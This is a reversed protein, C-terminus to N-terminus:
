TDGGPGAGEMPTPSPERKITVKQQGWGTGLVLAAEDFLRGVIFMNDRVVYNVLENKGASTDYLVPLPVTKAESALELYTRQGDDWAKKPTWLFDGAISYRENRPPPPQTVQKAQEQQQKQIAADRQQERKFEEAPFWFGVRPEVKGGEVLNIDYIHQDTTVVLNTKIGKTTPKVVVHPTRQEGKGSSSEVALWRENDGLIM